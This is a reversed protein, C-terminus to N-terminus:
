LYNGRGNRAMSVRTLRDTYERAITDAQTSWRFLAAQRALLDQGPRCEPNEVLEVVTRSWDDLDAVRCYTVADGGVERLVPIDSAVVNTGCALAEIVPLGFGESESPLLTLTAGRYLEVLELRTDAIFSQVRGQLGLSEILRYHDSTFDAGAHVLHLDPRVLRVRAFTRLLVDIRKRPISSGVHLLYSYSGSQPVPSPTFEKSAGYPARVLREAPVIEHRLLEKRVSDTTHFVVLAQKLGQLIRRCM